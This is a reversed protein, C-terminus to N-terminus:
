EIATAENDDGEEVEIDGDDQLKVKEDKEPEVVDLIEGDKDDKDKSDKDKADNNDKSKEVKKKTSTLPFVTGHDELNRLMEEPKPSNQTPVEWAFSKLVTAIKDASNVFGVEDLLNAAALLHKVALSQKAIKELAPHANKYRLNRDLETLFEEKTAKKLFM